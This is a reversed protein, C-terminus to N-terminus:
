RHSRLWVSLWNKTTCVKEVGVILHGSSELDRRGDRNGRTLAAVNIVSSTRLSTTYGEFLGIGPIRLEGNLCQVRPVWLFVHIRTVGLTDACSNLLDEAFDVDTRM